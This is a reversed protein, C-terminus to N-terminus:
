TLFKEICGPQCPQGKESIPNKDSDTTYYTNPPDAVMAAIGDLKENFLDCTFHGSM